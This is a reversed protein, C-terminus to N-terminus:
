SGRVTCRRTLPGVDAALPDHLAGELHEPGARLRVEPAREGSPHHQAPAQAAHARGLGGPDGHVPADGQHHLDVGRADRPAELGPVDLLCEVVEIRRPPAAPGRRRRALCPGERQPRVRGVHALVEGGRALAGVADGVLGGGVVEQM